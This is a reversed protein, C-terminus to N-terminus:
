ARDALWAALDVDTPPNAGARSVTIAACHTARTVIRALQEESIEHLSRRSSGGDLGEMALGTLLAAMFSDGAGITDVLHAPVGPVSFRLGSRSAVFAGDAGRTVVVIAPGHGLWSEAATEVAVGPYLWGLDEDSAKVVDALALHREVAARSEGLSGLLQPRVNPDYTVIATERLTAVLEEVSHAGPSLFAGISGFHVLSFRAVDGLASLTVSPLMWDIAFDYHASGEEDITTTATASRRGAVQPCLLTAGSSRVHEALADGREDDGIDTVLEAPMGLRAVGFSVNLPSGGAHDATAGRSVVIDTISEGIVLARSASSYASM